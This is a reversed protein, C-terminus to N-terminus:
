ILNCSLGYSKQRRFLCIHEYFVISNHALLSASLKIVKALIYFFLPLQQTFSTLSTSKYQQEDDSM